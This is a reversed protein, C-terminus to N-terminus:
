NGPRYILRGAERAEPLAHLLYRKMRRTELISAELREVERKANRVGENSDEDEGDDDDDGDVCGDDFRDQAEELANQADYLADRDSALDDECVALEHEIMDVYLFQIDMSM